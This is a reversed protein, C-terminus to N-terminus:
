YRTEFSAPAIRLIATTGQFSFLSSFTVFLLAVSLALIITSKKIPYCNRNRFKQLFAVANKTAQM